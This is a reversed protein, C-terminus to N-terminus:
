ANEKQTSRSPYLAKAVSVALLAAVLQAMLFAPVSSPAIGTYTDTVARAITVAPNAFGTSSTAFVIVAVWAGVAAPIAAPRDIRVLALILLVLVFTAVAESLILGVGSRETAAISAAPLGFSLNALVVGSLAGVLQAVTYRFAKDGPLSGERWFGLTVAPNFHSGSVSQFLLVLVALGLGVALAHALLEVAGDVGLTQAAIGSGVIVYLLLATGLFEAVVERSM